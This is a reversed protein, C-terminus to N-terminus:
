RPPLLFAVPIQYYCRVVEGNEKGPTFDKDLKSVAILAQEDLKPHVSSIVTPNTFSGDKEVIIQVIVIGQVKDKLLEAPYRANKTVQLQLPNQQDNYVPMQSVTFFPEGATLDTKEKVTASSQSFSIKAAQVPKGDPNEQTPALNTLDVVVDPAKEEDGKQTTKQEKITANRAPDTNKVAKKDQAVGAVMFLMAFAFLAISKFTFPKSKM